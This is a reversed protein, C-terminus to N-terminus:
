ADSSELARTLVVMSFPHDGPAPFPRTEGEYAYGCREYFAILEPRQDIVTMEMLQAGFEAVAAREVARILARGLGGAQLAPDVGLMGMYALAGGLNRVTVTGILSGDREALLVRAAPDVITEALIADSTREDDLLDAEHTWGQRASDGRYAREVLARLASVDAATAFRIVTGALHPPLATATETAPDIM